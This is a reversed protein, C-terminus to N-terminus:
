SILEDCPGKGIAVYRATQQFDARNLIRWCDVVTPTTGGSKLQQPRIERFEPWPVTIVVVDAQRLCDSMSAVFAADNGLVARASENAQPDYLVVPIDQKLLYEALQLGQSEEVVNTDPKYSLGLIGVTGNAPLHSMVLRALRPVQARNLQDTAEALIPQAGIQRALCAFAANDRPFCPGGYGVAGKLYKRGIRSDMGIASTVVDIDAGPLRECIESLMNAYSIKTTVFTNVALKSIEANVFSMRAIQPSKDCLTRQIQELVYGAREDSQGILIFDPNLM